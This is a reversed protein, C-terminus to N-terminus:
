SGKMLGNFAWISVGFKFYHLSQELYINYDDQGKYGYKAFAYLEKSMPLRVHYAVSYTLSQKWDITKFSNMGLKVHFDIKGRPLIVNDFLPAKKLHIIQAIYSLNYKHLDDLQFKGGDLGDLLFHISQVSSRKFDKLSVVNYKLSLMNSSFDGDVINYKQGEPLQLTSDQSVLTPGDQGNSHHVFGLEISKFTSVKDNSHHHLLRSYYVGPLFSPTKISHSPHWDYNTRLPSYRKNWIRLKAGMTLRINSQSREHDFLYYSPYIEATALHYNYKLIGEEPDVYEYEKFHYEGIFPFSIESAEVTLRSLSHFKRNREADSLGSQGIIEQAISSESTMVLLLLILISKM